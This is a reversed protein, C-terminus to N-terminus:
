PWCMRTLGRQVKDDIFSHCNKLQSLLFGLEDEQVQLNKDKGRLDKTVKESLKQKHNDLAAHLANFADELNRLREEESSKM